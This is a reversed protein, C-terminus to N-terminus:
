VGLGVFAAGKPPRTSLAKAAKSWFVLGTGARRHAGPAPAELQDHADSAPGGRSERALPDQQRRDRLSHHRRAAHFGRSIASPSCAAARSRRSCRTSSTGGALPRRVTHSVRRDREVPTAVGCRGAAPRERDRRQVIEDLTTGFPDSGLVGVVLPSRRRRVVRRPWDVFQSFNFLFVAKVQYETPAPRRRRAVPRRRARSLLAAVLVVAHCLTLVAVDGKRVRQARDRRADSPAGFELHHDHLLNQGVLALELQESAQWALRVDLESYAHHRGPRDGAAADLETRVVSSRM